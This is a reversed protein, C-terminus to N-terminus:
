AAYLYKPKYYWNPIICNSTVLERKNRIFVPSFKSIDCKQAIDIGIKRLRARHTKVQSKNFDFSIGM